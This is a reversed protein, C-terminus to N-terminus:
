YKLPETFVETQEPYTAISYKEQLLLAQENSIPYARNPYWIIGREDGVIYQDFSNENYLDLLCDYLDWVQFPLDTGQCDMHKISGRYISFGAGVIGNSAQALSILLFTGANEDVEYGERFMNVYLTEKGSVSYPLKMGPGEGVVEEWTGPNLTFGLNNSFGWMYRGIETLGAPTPLLTPTPTMTVTPTKSPAPTSTATSSPVPTLTASEVSPTIVQIETVQVAPGTNQPVVTCSVLFTVIVTFLLVAKM